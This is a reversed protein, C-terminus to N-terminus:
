AQEEVKETEEAFLEPHVRQPLSSCGIVAPLIICIFVFNSIYQVAQSAGFFEKCGDAVTLIFGAVFAIVCIIDIYKQDKKM